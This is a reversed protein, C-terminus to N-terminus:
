ALLTCLLRVWRPGPATTNFGWMRIRNRSTPNCVHLACNWWSQWKSCYKVQMDERNHPLTSKLVLLISSRLSHTRYSCSKLDILGPKVARKFRRTVVIQVLYCWLLVYSLYGIHIHFVHTQRRVDHHSTNGPSILHTLLLLLLILCRWIQSCVDHCALTFSFYVEWQLLFFFSTSSCSAHWWLTSGSTSFSPSSDSCLYYFM